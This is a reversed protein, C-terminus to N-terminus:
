RVPKVFSFVHTFGLIDTILLVLFVFVAAGIVAGIGDGGAPLQDMAQAVKALEADSLSAVRREAEAVDVGQEVMVQRVDERKLFATVRARNAEAAQAAIVADTAILQAQAMTPVSLDALLLAGIVLVSMYKIMKQM